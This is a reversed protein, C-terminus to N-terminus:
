WTEHWLMTGCAMGDYMVHSWLFETTTRHYARVEGSACVFILSGHVKVDNPRVLLQDNFHSIIGGTSRNLQMVTSSAPSVAYVVEDAFDFSRVHPLRHRSWITDFRARWAEFGVALSQNYADFGQRPPNYRIIKHSMESSVYADNTRPDFLLKFPMHYPAVDAFIGKPSGTKGNFRYVKADRASVVYLDGFHFQIGRPSGKVTCFENLYQGSQGDYKLISSTGENAILMNRDPGFAMGWPRHLGGDGARIFVDFFSRNSLLFRLVNSSAIDTIFLTKHYVFNFDSSQTPSNKYDAQLKFSYTGPNNRPTPCLLKTGDESVSTAATSETGLVCLLKMHLNTGTVNVLVNGEIPGELPEVHTVTPLVEKIVGIGVTASKVEKRSVLCQLSGADESGLTPFSVYLTTSTVQVTSVTLLKGQATTIFVRVDGAVDGLNAGQLRLTRTGFGIESASVATLSPAASLPAVFTGISTGHLPSSGGSRSVAISLKSGQTAASTSATDVILRSDEAKVVTVTIAHGVINVALDAVQTGFHAGIIELRNGTASVAVQNMRQYIEPAALVTAVKAEDSKVGKVTVTGMLAASGYVGAHARDLNVMTASFASNTVAPTSSIAAFIGGGYQSSLYLRIDQAVTGFGSGAVVVQSAGAIVNQITTSITPKALAAAVVGIQTWASAGHKVHRVSARIPSGVAWLSTDKVDFWVISDSCFIVQVSAPLSLFVALETTTNGFREGSIEVRNGTASQAVASTASTVSPAQDVLTAVQASAQVGQVTVLAQLGGVCNSAGQLKVAFRSPTVYPARTKVQGTVSCITHTFYVRLNTASYGFNTGAISLEQVHAPHAAASATV